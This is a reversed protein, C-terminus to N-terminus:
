SIFLLLDISGLVFDISGLIAVIDGLNTYQIINNITSICLFDNTIINITIFPFCYIFLSYIGKSSEISILILSISALILPYHIFFDNILLEMLVLNGLSYYYYHFSNILLYIILYIIRVSEILENIRIVYRDLCDAALGIYLSYNISSYLEYGILRADIIIGTSRILVGTLGFYLCFEGNIIGIENLRTRWIRNNTLIIVIEKIQIAFHILWFIFSNIWSLRIDYRLRSVLIITVHFRTGSILEIYKLLKEREDFSWLMTTFLGIDIATTTINLLHNLIRYFEFFLTRWCTIYNNIISNILREVAQILLVEQTINSVYDM